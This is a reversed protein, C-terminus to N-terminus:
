SVPLPEIFPNIIRLRDEVLMGHQMDESYLTTAGAKLATAVIMADFISFRHKEALALGQQHIDLDIPHVTRCVSEIWLAYNRIDQWSQALKRRAVNAFENLVQVSIDCERKLIARAVASKAEDSFAYIVVDTDVFEPAM